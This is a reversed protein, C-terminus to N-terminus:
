ARHKQVQQLHESIQDAVESVPQNADLVIHGQQIAQELHEQQSELVWSHMRPDKGYNNDERSLIREIQTNPAVDLVFHADFLGDFSLDNHAGGCIFVDEHKELFTRLVDGDWLWDYENLDVFSNDNFKQKNGNADTWASLDPMDDTDFANYGRRNLEKSVTTKGSGARGTILVRM